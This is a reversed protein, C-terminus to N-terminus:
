PGLCNWHVQDPTYMKLGLCNWHVQNPTFRGLPQETVSDAFNWSVKNRGHACGHLGLLCIVVVNCMYLGPRNWHVQDPTFWNSYATNPLFQALPQQTRNDVFHLISLPISSHRSNWLGGKKRKSHTLSLFLVDLERLSWHTLLLTSHSVTNLM